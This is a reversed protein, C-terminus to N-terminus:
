KRTYEAKESLHNVTQLISKAFGLLSLLAAIIFFLSLDISLNINQFTAHFLGIRLSLILYCTAFLAKSASFIHQFITGSALEEVITFAIQVMFFVEVTQQLGSVMESVPALFMWLFFYIAYFVLGKITAKLGRSVIVRIKTLNNKKEAM